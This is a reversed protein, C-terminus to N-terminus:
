GQRRRPIDDIDRGKWVYKVGATERYKELAKDDMDFVDFLQKYFHGRIEKMEECSPHLDKYRSFDNLGKNSRLAKKHYFENIADTAFRYSYVKKTSIYYKGKDSIVENTM